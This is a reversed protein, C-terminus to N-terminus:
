GLHIAANDDPSGERMFIVNREAGYFITASETSEQNLLPASRYRARGSDVATSNRQGLTFLFARGCEPRSERRIHVEDMQDDTCDTEGLLKAHRLERLRFAPARRGSHRLGRQTGTQFPRFGFMSVAFIWAFWKTNRLDRLVEAVAEGGLKMSGDPMLVHITAYADWIDLDPNLM